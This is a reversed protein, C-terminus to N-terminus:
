SRSWLHPGGLPYTSGPASVQFYWGSTIHSGASTTSKNSGLYQWRSGATITANSIDLNRLLNNNSIFNTLLITRGAMNLNGSTFNITGNTSNSWNDLLTLSGSGTKAVIWSFNITGGGNTTLTAVSTGYFELIANTTVAPQLVASGYVRFSSTVSENFTM